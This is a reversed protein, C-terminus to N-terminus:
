RPDAAPRVPKRPQCDAGICQILEPPLGRAKVWESLVDLLEPGTDQDVFYFSEWDRPVYGSYGNITPVESALSAWMADLQYEHFPVSKCPHYYFALQHRDVQRAIGAINARNAIADFTETTVAQESLCALSVIGSAVPWRSRNLYKVLSALGLAAPILLILSVRGVARIATGGPILRFYKLWLSDIGYFYVVIPLAILMAAVLQRPPPRLRRPSSVALSLVAAVLAGILARPEDLFTSMVLFLTLAVLSGFGVEWLRNRHFYVMVGLLPAVLMVGVLIAHLPFHSVGLIGLAVGPVLQGQPHGRMRRIELLCLVITTLALVEVYPNPFRTLLLVGLVVTLGIGRPLPYDSAHFLAAACYYIVGAAVIALTDGPLYTTGSLMLFTVLAALRCIPRERGLYLGASCLLPTLFGIGLNHEHRSPLGHFM